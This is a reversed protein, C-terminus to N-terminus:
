AIHYWMGLLMLGKFFLLIMTYTHYPCVVPNPVINTADLKGGMGVELVIV